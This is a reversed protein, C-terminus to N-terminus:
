ISILIASAASSLVSPVDITLKKSCQDDHNQSNHEESVRIMTSTANRPSPSYFALKM